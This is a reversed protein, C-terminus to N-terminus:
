FFGQAEGVDGPDLAFDWVGSLDLVERFANRQPELGAAVPLPTAALSARAVLLAALLFGSVARPTTMPGSGLVSARPRKPGRAQDGARELWTAVGLPWTMRGYVRTLRGRSEAPELGIM